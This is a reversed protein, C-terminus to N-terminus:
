SLPPLPEPETLYPVPVGNVYAAEWHWCFASGGATYGCYGPSFGSSGLPMGSGLGAWQRRGPVVLPKGKGWWCYAEGAATLACAGYGNLATIERFTLDTPVPEPSARFDNSMEDGTDGWCYPTGGMTLACVWQAGASIHAYRRSGSVATPTGVSRNRAGSGLGGGWGWCDAEGGDRLACTFETGTAIATYEQTGEVAQPALVDYDSSTSGLGGGLALGWCYAHHSADIACTHTSTAIETFPHGGAVLSPTLAGDTTGNGVEGHVNYGWCLARGDVDLGCMRAEDSRYLAAFRMGNAGPVPVNSGQMTGDGFEGFRNEGWCRVAGSDLLACTSRLASAISVV